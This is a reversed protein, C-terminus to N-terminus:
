DRSYGLCRGKDNTWVSYLDLVLNDIHRKIKPAADVLISYCSKGQKAKKIKPTISTNMTYSMSLM